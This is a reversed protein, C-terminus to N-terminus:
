REVVTGDFRRKLTPHTLRSKPKLGLHKARVRDTKAKAKRDAATKLKHPAKLALRINSECHRGGLSLAIEHEFEYDDGPRIKAGTLYCRGGEREWIRLKVRRPIAADDTAGVWEETSRAM